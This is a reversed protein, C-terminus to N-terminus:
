HCLSAILGGVVAAGVVAGAVAPRFHPLHHHHFHHVPHAFYYDPEYYTDYWYWDHGRLYGWRGEHYRVRGEWGPIYGHCDLRHHRGGAYVMRHDPHHEVHMSPRGQHHMVMEHRPGGMRVDSMHGRRQAMANNSVIMMMAMAMMAAFFNNHRM